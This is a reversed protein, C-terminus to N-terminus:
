TYTIDDWWQAAPVAVHAIGDASVPRGDRVPLAMPEGCCACSSEVDGDARLAAVVGYADWVCNAFYASTGVVVRFLTPNGAFPPAMVIEESEPALVLLRQAALERYREIVTSRALELASAAEAIRPPRGRSVTWRYLFEQVNREEAM